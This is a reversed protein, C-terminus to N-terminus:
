LPDLRRPVTRTTGMLPSRDALADLVEGWVVVERGCLDATLGRSRLWQRAVADSVPLLHAARSVPNVAATGLALRDAHRDSPM